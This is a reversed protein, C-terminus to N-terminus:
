SLEIMWARLQGNGRGCPVVQVWFVGLIAVMHVEGMTRQGDVMLPRLVFGQETDRLGRTSCIQREEL